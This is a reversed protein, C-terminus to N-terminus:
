VRKSYQINWLYYSIFRHLDNSWPNWRSGCCLRINLCFITRILFCKFMFNSFLIAIVFYLWSIWLIFFINRLSSDDYSVGWIVSFWFWWVISRNFFILNSTWSSVKGFSLKFLVHPYKNLFYFHKNSTKKRVWFKAYLLLCWM